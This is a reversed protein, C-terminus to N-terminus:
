KRLDASPAILNSPIPLEAAKRFAYSIMLVLAHKKTMITMMRMLEFCPWHLAATQLMSSGRESISPCGVSRPPVQVVLYIRIKQHRHRHRAAVRSKLKGSSPPSTQAMVQSTARPLMRVRQRQRTRWMPSSNPFSRAQPEALANLLVFGVYCSIVPQMGFSSPIQSSIHDLHGLAGEIVSAATDRVHKHRSGDSAPLSASKQKLEGVDRLFAM